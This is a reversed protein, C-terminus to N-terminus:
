IAGLNLFVIEFIKKEICWGRLVFLSHFLNSSLECKALLGSFHPVKYWNLVETM